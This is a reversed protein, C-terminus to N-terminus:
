LGLFGGSLADVLGQQFIQQSRGANALGQAQIATENNQGNGLLAGALGTRQALNFQAGQLQRGLRNEELQARTLDANQLGQARNLGFSDLAQARNLEFASEAQRGQVLAQALSAGLDTNAQRAFSGALSAAGGSFALGGRSAVSRANSIAAQQAGLSSRAALGRLAGQLNLPGVNSAQSGLQQFPGGLVGALGNNQQGSQRVENFNFDLRDVTRDYLQEAAGTGERARVRKNDQGTIFGFAGGLANGIDSFFNGM